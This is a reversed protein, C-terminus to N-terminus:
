KVLAFRHEIDSTDKRSDFLSNKAANQKATLIPSSTNPVVIFSPFVDKTPKKTDNKHENCM